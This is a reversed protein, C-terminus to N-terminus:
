RWNQVMVVSPSITEYVADWESAEGTTAIATGGFDPLNDKLFQIMDSGPRAMGYSDTDETDESKATIIGVVQGQKNCLPGGSNGPNVMCDLLYMGDTSADPLASIVGTTIKLRRGTTAGLPFGFAGINSGPNLKTSAIKLPTLAVDNPNVRLLALDSEKDTAVVSANISPRGAFLVERESGGDIVHYNSLLYGRSDVVFATGSGVLLRSSSRGILSLEYGGHNKHEASEDVFFASLFVDADSCSGVEPTQFELEEGPRLVSYRTAYGDEEQNSSYFLVVGLMPNAEGPSSYAAGKALVQYRYGLKLQLKVAKQSLPQEVPMVVCHREADVYCTAENGLASVGFLSYHIAVICVLSVIKLSRM